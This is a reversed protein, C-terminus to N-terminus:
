ACSSAIRSEFPTAPTFKAMVNRRAQSSLPEPAMDELLAGGIAEMEGSRLRCQSCYSLHTALILSVAEDAAGSAYALLLADDPHHRIM